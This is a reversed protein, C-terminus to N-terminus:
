TQAVEVVTWGCNKPLDDVDALDAKIGLPKLHNQLKTLINQRQTRRTHLKQKTNGEQPSSYIPSQALFFVVRIQNPPRLIVTRLAPALLSDGQRAGLCLAGWTHLVKHAIEVPIEGTMIKAKLGPEDERFDKIELLTIEQHAPGQTAVIDVGKIGAGPNEEDGRWKIIEVRQRYFGQKALNIEDYKIAHWGDADPFEFLHKGERIVPM